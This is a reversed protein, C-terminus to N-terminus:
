SLLRAKAVAYEEETLVGKAMQESLSKLQDAIADGLQVEVPFSVDTAVVFHDEDEDEGDDIEIAHSLASSEYAMRGSAMRAASEAALSEDDPGFSNLAAGRNAAIREARVHSPEGPRLTPDVRRATRQEAKALEAHNTILFKIAGLVFVALAPFFTVSPLAQATTGLFALIALGMLSLGTMRPDSM